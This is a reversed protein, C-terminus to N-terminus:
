YVQMLLWYLIYNKIKPASFSCHFIGTKRRNNITSDIRQSPSRFRILIHLYKSFAYSSTQTIYNRNYYYQTDTKNVVKCITTQKSYTNVKFKIKQKLFIRPPGVHIDKTLSIIGSRNNVQAYVGLDDSGYVQAQALQSLVLKIIAHSQLLPDPQTARRSRSAPWSARRRRVHSRYRRTM